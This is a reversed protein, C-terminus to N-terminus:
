RPGDEEAVHGPGGDLVIRYPKDPKLFTCAGSADTRGQWLVAGAADELRLPTRAAETGTSYMGEVTVSGDGNDTVTMFLTHAWAAATWACFLLAALLLNRKM